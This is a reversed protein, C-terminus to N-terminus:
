LTFKKFNKDLLTPSEKNVKAIYKIQVSYKQIKYSLKNILSKQVAFLM